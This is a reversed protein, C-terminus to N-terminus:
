EASLNVESSDGVNLHYFKAEVKANSGILSKELLIGKVKSKNDVISDVIIADNIEADEGISVNPGIISNNIKASKAIAVPPVIVSHPYRIRYTHETGSHKQQLLYRNTALLTEPKGCDFWGEIKFKTFREGQDLMAQLADTLQFEGKTTINNKINNELCSYLLSPNCIYYIGVIALNTPPNEPKEIMRTINKNKDIEVIGFRKPDDVEKVAITSTKSKVLTSLDAKFITDGLIILVNKDNKHLEKTLYIAHGLGRMEPQLVFNSKITFEKKVYKEIMEGLYGVIFTVEDVGAKVLEELIHGLMPKGAVNLLVKPTTHTHPRLRSGMGAVPIIAKM